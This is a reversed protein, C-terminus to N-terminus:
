QVTINISDTIPPNTVLHGSDAFVVVLKHRGPTLAKAFTYESGGTGLHIHNDDRSVPQGPAPANDDVIIHLHGQGAASPTAAPILTLGNVVVQVKFLASVTAGETPSAFKVSPGSAAPACAALALCGILLVFVALGFKKM